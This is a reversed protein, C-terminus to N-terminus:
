SLRPVLCTARLKAVHHSAAVLHALCSSFLEPLVLHYWKSQQHVLYMHNPM